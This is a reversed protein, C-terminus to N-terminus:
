GRAVGSDIGGRRRRKHIQGDRPAIAPAGRVAEGDPPGVRRLVRCRYRAGLVAEAAGARRGLAYRAAFGRRADVLEAAELDGLGAVPAESQPKTVVRAVSSGLRSCQRNM